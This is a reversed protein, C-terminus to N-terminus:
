KLGARTPIDGAHAMVHYIFNEDVVGAFLHAYPGRAFIAVDEGGHTEGSLPVLSQQKFDPAQTDAHTLDARESEASPGNMYGLTTYPKKDRGLVLKGDTDVVLGLIPNDRKPYGSITLVHSHDATVIILTDDADTLRSATAIAEDFAVTDRLARAANDGHHAHDIRGGEVLLLFGTDNKRLMAIAKETMESLSPEGAVDKARDTEYRMDSPEFLGLAHSTKAPDLADFGKKEWVYAAARGRRKKCEAILNKGDGRAGSINSYEPDQANSPMFKQRGGGFVVEFGDGYPWNVFQSAIDTCGEARDKVAMDSDAEWDRYPTHAYASAPTAHTIRTTTVIGTSLRAMEAMEFITLLDNGTASACNKPVVNQNLGLTDNVTKVGTMMAVASPASDTVQSDHSYTRSLASYPFTEMALRHSVGDVGKSQGAYIRAATVTSIGMGDGVFLIINKARKTNPKQELREQLVAGASLFYSDNKQPLGTQAWVQAAACAGVLAAAVIGSKRNM